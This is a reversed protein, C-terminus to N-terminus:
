KVACLENLIRASDARTIKTSKGDSNMAKMTQRMPVKDKPLKSVLERLVEVPTSKISEASLPIIKGEKSAQLVIVNKENENSKAVDAQSKAELALVKAQVDALGASYEHLKSNEKNTIPAEEGSAGEYYALFAEKLRKLAEASDVAGIKVKAVKETQEKVQDMYKITQTVENPTTNKYADPMDAGLAMQKEEEDKVISDHPHIPSITKPELEIKESEKMHKLVNDASFFTLDKIAGKPTVALSHMGIVINNEDLIVAPSLDKYDRVSEKGIDTWQIDKLFIGEPTACPKGYGAIRRPEKDSNYALTGPCTNHNFDIQVEEGGSKEQNTEFDKLTKENVIVPDGNTKNIGFSMVKLCTPLEKSDLAGNSIPAHFTALKM